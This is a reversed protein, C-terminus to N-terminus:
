MYFPLTSFKEYRVQHKQSVILDFGQSSVAMDSPQFVGDNWVCKRINISVFRGPMTDEILYALAGFLINKKRQM